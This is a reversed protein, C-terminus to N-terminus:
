SGPRSRAHAKKLDAISVRLYQSLTRLSAHGLMAQIQAPGAGRALMHTACARRLAHPTLSSAIGASRGYASIAREVIQPNIRRGRRGLWLAPEDAPCPRPPEEIPRGNLLSPRTDALYRGIWDLAVRGLPVAREKSGKGLIRVVGRELDCDGVDMGVLECLRCGTSYATELMARDRIGLPKSLDPQTLLTRMEAETPVFGIKRDLKPMRLGGAPSVFVRQERELWAFFARVDTLYHHRSVASVRGALKVRYAELDDPTVDQLREIGRDGLFQLLRRLANRYTRITRPSRRRRVLDALFEGLLDQPTTHTSSQTTKM